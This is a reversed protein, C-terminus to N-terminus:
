NKDLLIVLPDNQKNQEDQSKPMYVKGMLIIRGDSLEKATQIDSSSTSKFHFDVDPKDTLGLSKNFVENLDQDLIIVAGKTVVQKTNVLFRSGYLLLKQTSLWIVGNTSFDSINSQNILEGDGSYKIVKTESMGTQPKVYGCAYLIEGAPNVAISQANFNSALDLGKKWIVNGDADLKYLIPVYETINDNYKKGLIIINKNADIVLEEAEENQESSIKKFWEVNNTEVDIKNLTINYLENKGSKTMLVLANKPDIEKVDEITTSYVIKEDLKQSEQTDLNYNITTPIYQNNLYLNAYIRLNNDDQLTMHKLDYLNEYEMVSEKIKTGNKDTEILQLAHNKYNLDSSRFMLLFDGNQLENMQIAKSQNYLPNSNEFYFVNLQGYVNSISINLIIILLWITTNAKM